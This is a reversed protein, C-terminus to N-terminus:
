SFRNIIKPNIEPQHEFFHNLTDKLAAIDKAKCVDAFFRHGFCFNGSYYASFKHFRRLATQEGFYSILLELLKVACDRYIETKPEFGAAWQAFSWPKAIAIRGLMVGDCRTTEIMKACDEIDFVNGNGFVPISVAQKVMRIYEWKPPRTRKDPAVRPHFSLADAGADEFRKALEVPIKPNDEWGTRFKVFIPISVSNRIASIIQTALTPHKLIAAGCNKRCLASVSCGFNLDVGFFGEAEVQEAAKTLQLPDSGYLQCVLQPLEETQWIFGSLKHSSKNAVANASCMESFMLGCGGFESVMQRFPPHGIKSMPALVLRTSIQRNGINLPRNLFESLESMIYAAIKWNETKVIRNHIREYDSLIILVHVIICSM